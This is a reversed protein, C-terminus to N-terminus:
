LDILNLEVKKYNLSKVFDEIGMSYNSIINKGDEFFDLSIWGSNLKKNGNPDLELNVCDYSFAAELIKELSNCPDIDASEGAAAGVLYGDELAAKVIAKVIGKEAVKLM